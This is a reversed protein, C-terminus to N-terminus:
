FTLELANAIVCCNDLMPQLGKVSPCLLMDDAYLLCGLFVCKITCGISLSRLKTILANM